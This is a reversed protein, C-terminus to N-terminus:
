EIMLAGKILQLKREDMRENAKNILRKVSYFMKIAHMRAIYNM